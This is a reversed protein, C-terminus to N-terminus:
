GLYFSLSLRETFDVVDVDQLHLQFDNLLEDIQKDERFIQQLIKLSTSVSSTM